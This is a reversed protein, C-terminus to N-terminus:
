RQPRGPPMTVPHAACANLERVVTDIMHGAFFGNSSCTLTDSVWGILAHPLNNSCAIFLMRTLPDNVMRVDRIKGSSFYDIYEQVDDVQTGQFCVRASWYARMLRVIPAILAPPELLWDSFVVPNVLDSNFVVAELGRKVAADQAQGGGKSHGTLVFKPLGSGCSGDFRNFERQVLEATDEAAQYQLPRDGLHQLFNTYYWDYIDNQNLATLSISGRFALILTNTNTDCYLAARFDTKLNIRKWNEPLIDAADQVFKLKSSYISPPYGGVPYCRSDDYSYLSAIAYAIANGCESGAMMNGGMGAPVSDPNPNASCGQVSPLGNKYPCSPSGQGHAIHSFDAALVSAGIVTAVFVPLHVRAGLLNSLIM